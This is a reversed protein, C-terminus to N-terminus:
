IRRVYRHVVRHLGANFFRRWVYGRAVSLVTFCITIVVNQGMTVPLRWVPVVVLTWFALSVAFGTATSACQEILSEIRTQHM